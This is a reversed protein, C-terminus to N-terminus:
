VPKFQPTGGLRVIEDHLYWMAKNLDETKSPSKLGSRWIYKMANGTNFPMHRTIQICEIGSPHSKYHSPNITDTPLTDQKSEPLQSAVSEAYAQRRLVAAFSRAVDILDKQESFPFYVNCKTCTARGHHAENLELEFHKNGCMPCCSEKAEYPAKM